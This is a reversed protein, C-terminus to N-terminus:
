TTIIMIVSLIPNDAINTQNLKRVISSTHGIFQNTLKTKYNKREGSLTGLGFNVFKEFNCVPYFLQFVFLFQLLASSLLKGGFPWM